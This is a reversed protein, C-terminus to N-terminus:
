RKEGLFALALPAKDLRRIYQYVKPDLQYYKDWLSVQELHVYTCESICHNIINVYYINCNACLRVSDAEDILSSIMQVISNAAPILKPKM